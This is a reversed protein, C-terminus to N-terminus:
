KSTRACARTVPSWKMPASPLGILGSSLAPWSRNSFRVACCMFLCKLGPESRRGRCLPENSERCLESLALAWGAVRLVPQATTAGRGPSVNDRRAADGPRKDTNANGAFRNQNKIHIRGTESPRFTQQHNTTSRNKQQATRQQATTKYVLIIPIMAGDPATAFIRKQHYNEKIFGAVINDMQKRKRKNDMDYDYVINPQLFSSFTFRFTNTNFYQNMLFDETDRIEGPWIAYPPEPLRVYHVEEDSLDQVRIKQVGNEWEWAVFHHRFLDIRDIFVDDRHPLVEVYADPDDLADVPVKVVKFNHAGDANTKIYFYAGHSSVEYQVGYQRPAIIKFEGSPQNTPLYRVERTVQGEIQLLLYKKNSTTNIKLIFREDPESYLMEDDSGDPANEGLVHKWLTDSRGHEDIRTYFITRNDAAWRITWGCPYIEDDLWRSSSSIDRIRLSFRENGETDVGYALLDHSPSVECGGLKFYDEGEAEKNEDLIIQEENDLGEFRRCHITYQQEVETRSYYFFDDEQRYCSNSDGPTRAVFEDYLENQLDKTHKMSWEAFANEDELHRLVKPNEKERLWFYDDFVKVGDVEHYKERIPQLLPPGRVPKSKSKIAPKLLSKEGEFSLGGSLMGSKKEDGLGDEFVISADSAAESDM